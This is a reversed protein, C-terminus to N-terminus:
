NNVVFHTGILISAIFLGTIGYVALAVVWGYEHAMAFFTAAILLAVPLVVMAWGLIRKWNGPMKKMKEIM